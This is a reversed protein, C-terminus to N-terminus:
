ASDDEIPDLLGSRQAEYVAESGSHVQLKRYISRTHSRITNISVGMLGACADYSHGEALHQLLEQEKGSLVAESTDKLLTKLLYAALEKDVGKEDKSSQFIAESKSHVGLKRYIKRVHSRVTNISSNVVQAAEQYNLGKALLSIVELEKHSLIGTAPKSRVPFLQLIRRARSADIALKGTLTNHIVKLLNKQVLKVPLIASAGAAIAFMGSRDDHTIAITKLNTRNDSIQRIFEYSDQNTIRAPLILLSYQSTDTPVDALSPLCDIQLYDDLQPINRILERSESDDHILLIATVM